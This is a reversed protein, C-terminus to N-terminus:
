YKSLKDRRRQGFSNLKKRFRRYLPVAISGFDKIFKRHYNVKGLFSQLEKVNSPLPFDMVARVKKPDPEVGRESVLHGLYEM